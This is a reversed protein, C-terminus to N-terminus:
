DRGHGGYGHGGYGHGGLGFGINAGIGILEEVHVNPQSSSQQGTSSSSANTNTRRSTKKSSTKRPQEAHANDRGAPAKADTKDPVQTSPPEEGLPINPVTSVWHGNVFRGDEKVARGDPTQIRVWGGDTLHFTGDTTVVVNPNPKLPNPEIPKRQTPPTQDVVKGNPGKTVTSGDTHHEITTGNPGSTIKDVGPPWGGLPNEAQTPPPPPNSQQPNGQNPPQPNGEQTPPQPNEGHSPTSPTTAAQQPEAASTCPVEVESNPIIYTTVRPPWGSGDTKISVAVSFCKDGRAVVVYTIGNGAPNYEPHKAPEPIQEPQQALTVSASASILAIAIAFEALRIVPIM